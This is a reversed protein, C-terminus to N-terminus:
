PVLRRDIGDFENGPTIFFYSGAGHSVLLVPQKAAAANDSGVVSQMVLLSSHVAVFAIAVSSLSM